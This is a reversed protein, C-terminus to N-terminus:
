NNESLRSLLSISADWIELENLMYKKINWIDMESRM